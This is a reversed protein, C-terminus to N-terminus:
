HPGDNTWCAGLDTEEVRSISHSALGVILVCGHMRVRWFRREGGSSSM